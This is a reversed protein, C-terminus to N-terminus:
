KTLSTRYYDCEVCGYSPNSTEGDAATQRIRPRCPDLTPFAAALRCKTMGCLHAAEDPRGSIFIIDVGPRHRRAAKAACGGAGLTNIDTIVIETSPMNQFLEIAIRGDVAM